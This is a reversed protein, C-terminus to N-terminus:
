WWKLHSLELGPETNTLFYEFSSSLSILSNFGPILTQASLIGSMVTYYPSSAALCHYKNSSILGQTWRWKYFYYTRSWRNGFRTMYLLLALLFFSQITLITLPQVGSLSEIRCYVACVAYKISTNNKLQCVNTIINLDIILHNCM